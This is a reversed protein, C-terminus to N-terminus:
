GGRYNLGGLPLPAARETAASLSLEPSRVDSVGPAEYLPPIKPATNLRQSFIVSSPGLSRQSTSSTRSTTPSTTPPRPPTNVICSDQCPVTVFQYCSSLQVNSERTQCGLIRGIHLAKMTNKVSGRPVSDEYSTCGVSRTRKYGEAIEPQVDCGISWM